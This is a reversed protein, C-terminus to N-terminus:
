MDLQGCMEMSHTCANIPAGEDVSRQRRDRAQGKGHRHMLPTPWPPPPVLQIVSVDTDLVGDPM